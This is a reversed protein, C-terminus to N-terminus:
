KRAGILAHVAEEFADLPVQGSPQKMMETVSKSLTLGRASAKSAVQSFLGVNGRGNLAYRNGKADRLIRFRGQELGVPSTLGYPSIPNLFLLLEGAGKYGAFVPLDRDDWLYQRFTLTSTAEGKLVKGVTLTVVVTQLNSFQPHPELRASTVQGRVVTQANQVLTDLDAPASYAGDQPHGPSALSLLLVLFSTLVRALAVTTTM